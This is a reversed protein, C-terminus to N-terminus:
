SRTIVFTYYVPGRKDPIGQKERKNPRRYPQPSFSLACGWGNKSCWDTMWTLMPIKGNAPQKGFKSRFKSAVTIIITKWSTCTEISRADDVALGGCLDIDIFDCQNRLMQYFIDTYPMLTCVGGLEKKVDKSFNTRECLTVDVGLRKVLKTRVFSTGPEFPFNTALVNAARRRRILKYTTRQRELKQKTSAQEPTYM